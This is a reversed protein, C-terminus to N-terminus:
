IVARKKKKKKTKTTYNGARLAGKGPSPFIRVREGGRASPSTSLPNLKSEEGTEGKKGTTHSFVRKKGKGGPCELRKEEHEGDCMVSKARGCGKRM